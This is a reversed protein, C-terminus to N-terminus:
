RRGMTAVTRMVNIKAALLKIYASHKLSNKSLDAMEEELIVKTRDVRKVAKNLVEDFELPEFGPSNANAINHAIVSQVRTAKEIGNELNNFTSDFVQMSM